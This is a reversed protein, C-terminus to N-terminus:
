IAPQNLIRFKRSASRSREENLKWKLLEKLLQIMDSYLQHLEIITEHHTQVTLHARIFSASSCQSETVTTKDHSLTQEIQKMARELDGDREEQLLEIIMTEQNLHEQFDQLKKIQTDKTVKQMEETINSMEITFLQTIVPILLFHVLILFSMTYIWSLNMGQDYLIQQFLRWDDLTALSFLIVLSERLDVWNDGFLHQGILAFTIMTLCVVGVLCVARKAGRWYAAALVQLVEQKHLIETLRFTLFVRVSTNHTTIGLFVFICSLMVVISSLINLPNRWYGQPDIYVKMFFEVVYMLLFFGDTVKSFAPVNKLAPIILDFILINDLFIILLIFATFQRSQCISLVFDYFLSGGNRGTDECRACGSKNNGEM